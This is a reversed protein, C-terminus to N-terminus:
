GIERGRSLTRVKVSRNIRLEMAMYIIEYRSLKVHSLTVIEPFDPVSILIDIKHISTISLGHM